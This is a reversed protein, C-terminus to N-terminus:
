SKFSCLSFGRHPSLMTSTANWDPVNAVTPLPNSSQTLIASSRPSLAISSQSSLLKRQGYEVVFFSLRRYTSASLDWPMVGVEIEGVGNSDFAQRSNSKM